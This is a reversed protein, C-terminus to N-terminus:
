LKNSIKRGGVSMIVKYLGNAVPRSDQGSGDWMLEYTGGTRHEKQLSRVLRGRTTYIAFRVLNTRKLLESPLSYSIKVGQRSKDMGGQLALTKVAASARNQPTVAPTIPSSLTLPHPYRYPVYEECASLFYDRNLKVTQPHRNYVEAEDGNYTNNWIHLQRIQDVCPYNSCSGDRGEYLLHIPSVLSGEMVNNFVVGDGGRFNMGAWRHGIQFHNEYVEYSRSGRPWYFKNGHADVVNGNIHGDKVRNYRFVYRSGNNSAIHHVRTPDDVHIQEFYNDEVYVAEKSGLTLPREWAADGDGFIVVATPENDIFTNHDIVGRTNGHIEIARDNLRIFSNDYIRFDKCHNTLKIGRSMTPSIGEITLGTLVFREGNSCNVNFMWSSSSHTRRLTTKDRGAGMITIGGPVSVGNNFVFNGAPIKVTDGIRADNLATQVDTRSGSRANVIRAQSSFATVLLILIMWKFRM